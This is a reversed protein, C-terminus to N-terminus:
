AMALPTSWKSREKKMYRRIVNKLTRQIGPEYIRRYIKTHNCHRLQGLRSLLGAALKRSLKKRRKVKWRYRSLSRKIRLLNRKRVLTYGRGYRYGLATPIRGKTPFVQWDGKITLGIGALWTKIEALLKRLKRKNPGFITFNDMYRLYHSVRWQGQHILQDLPQLITNALWQSCYVGILVGHEVVREVLTLTKRDKVLRRLRDLVFKPQISDYFHRIDLQLCYKTGKVDNKMWKKLQRMGYHIGRAKISGCCYRDMGRMFTPELVQVLAHHVYQDPWLLPENIDRWKGASKDYRRKKIPPSLDRTRGILQDIIERLEKVRAPIDEEVWAVTKNPRHRPLWRHTKNVELIARTLNEDSILNPYLNRARKLFNRRTAECTKRREQQSLVLGHGLRSIKLLHQATM